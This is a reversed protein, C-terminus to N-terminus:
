CVKANKIRENTEGTKERYKKCGAKRVARRLQSQPKRALNNNTSEKRALNSDMRKKRASNGDM